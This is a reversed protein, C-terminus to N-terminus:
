LLIGVSLTAARHRIEPEVGDADTLKYVNTLGFGFRLSVTITVTKRPIQVGVEFLAGLSLPHTVELLDDHEGFSEPMTGGIGAELAWERRSYFVYNFEPGAGFYFASSNGRATHRLLLAFDVTTLKYVEWYEVGVTIGKPAGDIDLNEQGRLTGGRMAISAGPVLSFGAGLPVVLSVGGVLVPRPTEKVVLEGLLPAEFSFTKMEDPFNLWSAGAGGWIGFQLAAPESSASGVTSIVLVVNLLAVRLINKSMDEIAMGQSFDM